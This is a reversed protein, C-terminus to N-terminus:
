WPTAEGWGLVNKQAGSVAQPAVGEVEARSELELQREVQQRTEQWVSISSAAHRPTQTKSRSWHFPLLLLPLQEIRTRACIACTEVCDWSPM